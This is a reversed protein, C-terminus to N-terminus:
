IAEMCDFCTGKLETIWSNLTFKYKKAQKQFASTDAFANLEKTKGCQACVLIQLGEHLHKSSCAVYTKQSEICHVFGQEKWFQIARYVTPPKPSPLIKGLEALVEYAGLPKNSAALIKLTLERPKSYRHGHEKCYRMAKQVINTKMM